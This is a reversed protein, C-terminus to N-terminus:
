SRAEILKLTWEVTLYCFVLCHTGNRVIVTSINSIKEASIASTGTM